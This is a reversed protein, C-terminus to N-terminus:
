ARGHVQLVPNALPHGGRYPTPELEPDADHEYPGKQFALFRAANEPGLYRDLLRPETALLDVVILGDLAHAFAPDVNFGLLRGGLKLYQRLLVPAGIATPEISAVLGSLEDFDRVTPPNTNARFPHRSTVLAALEEWWAHKELYAVILERSAAQYQNSISVPGLLFRYRPHRGVFEGIGKWLLLLASFTRQYEQRVFSRGLELAPGMRDLLDPGYRFLTRTYLAPTVDTGALRYAGVVEGAAENWVFLHWYTEDFEDRDEATGTGEGAARFTIERLRAIEPLVHPIDAARALHVSLSGATHLAPLAAVDHRLLDVPMAPAVPALTPLSPQADRAALVATRWRLHEIRAEDGPLEALKAAAVPAGIRVAISRGQQRLLERPLLATGLVPHIRSVARFLGSTSGNLHAPLVNVPVGRRHLLDLLRAIAPDWPGDEVRRTQRQHRSVEGSPFVILAGGNTLWRYADRLARANVGRRHVDVAILEDSLGPVASLAQNALIRVDSRRSRLVDALVAGDLLGTPHNATILLPGVDPIHELDRPEVNVHIGLSAIVRAMLPGDSKQVSAYVSELDELAVLRRLLFRPLPLFQGLAHTLDPAPM